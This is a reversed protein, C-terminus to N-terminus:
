GGNGGGGNGGGGHSHKVKKWERHGCHECLWEEYRTGLFFGGERRKAGTRRLARYRKCEPCRNGFIFGLVGIIIIIVVFGVFIPHMEALHVKIPELHNM